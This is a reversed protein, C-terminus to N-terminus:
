RMAITSTASRDLQRGIKELEEVFLVFKDYLAGGQRAIEQANKNQQEIRWISAVTKLTALLTSPSVLVVKKEWAKSFLDPQHQLALIFAPEIPMFLIVFDPSNLQDLGQYHKESLQKIHTAISHVHQKLLSTEEGNETGGSLREYATLSVKSDIILHKDDPLHIIVDPQLRQGDQGNLKLDKGQSIFEVGERLGSNELIRSLVLEGWNGQLKNDGKLARTLNQADSSLQQNLSLLHELEQKLKLRDRTEQQYTLDIKQEFSQLREKMPSLLQGLQQQHQQSLTNAKKDLIEQALNEFTDKFQQQLQKIEQDKQKFREQLHQRDSELSQNIGTFSLIKARSHQLEMEMKHIQGEISSLEAKTASHTNQLQQQKKVLIIYTILFGLLLGLIAGIGLSMLDLMEM